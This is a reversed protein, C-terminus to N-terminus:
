VTTQINHENNTADFGKWVGRNMMLPVPEVPKNRRQLELLTEGADRISSIYAYNIIAEALKKPM